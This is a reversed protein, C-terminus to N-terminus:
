GIEPRPLCHFHFPVSCDTGKKMKYNYRKSHYHIRFSFHALFSSPIVGAPIPRNRAFISLCNGM